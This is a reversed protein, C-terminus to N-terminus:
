DWIQFQEEPTEGRFNPDPIMVGGHCNGRADVAIWPHTAYTKQKAVKDPGVTQYKKWAGDFGIWVIDLPTKTANYFTVNLPRKSNQSRLSGPAPCNRGAARTPAPPPPAAQQGRNRACEAAKDIAAAAGRLDWTQESNGVNMSFSPLTRFANVQDGSIRMSAWGDGEARLSAVEGAVGFGYYAEVKPKRGPYPVGIQWSRGDTGLRFDSRGNNITAACYGFANNGAWVSTVIWKGLVAYGGESSQAAAPTAISGALCAALCASALARSFM